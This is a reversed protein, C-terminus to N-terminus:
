SVTQTVADVAEVVKDPVSAAQEMLWEDLKENGTGTWTGEGMKDAVYGGLFKPIANYAVYALYLYVLNRVSFLGEEQEEGGPVVFDPDAIKRRRFEMMIELAEADLLFKHVEAEAKAQDFDPIDM